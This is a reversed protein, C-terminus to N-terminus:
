SFEPGDNKRRFVCMVEWEERGPVMVLLLAGDENAFPGFAPFPGHRFESGDTERFCTHGWGVTAM